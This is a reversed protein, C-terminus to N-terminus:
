ELAKALAAATNRIEQDPDHTAAKRVLARSEPTDLLALVDLATSRVSRPQGKMASTLFTIKEAVAEDKDMDGLGALLAEKVEPVREIGFLYVITKFSEPMAEGAIMRAIDARDESKRAALYEKKLTAVTVPEVVAAPALPAAPQPITIPREVIPPRPKAIRIPAPAREPSPPNVEGSEFWLAAAGIVLLGALGAALATVHSPHHSSTQSVPSTWAAM